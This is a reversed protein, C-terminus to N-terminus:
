VTDGWISPVAATFVCHKSVRDEFLPQALPTMPPHDRIGLGVLSTPYRVLVSICLSTVM